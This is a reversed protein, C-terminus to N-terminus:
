YTQKKFDDALERSSTRARQNRIKENLNVIENIIEENIEKLSRGKYNADYFDTVSSLIMLREVSNRAQILLFYQFIYSFDKFHYDKDNIIIPNDFVVHNLIEESYNITKEAIDERMFDRRDGEAWSNFMERRAAGWYKAAEREYYHPSYSFLTEPSLNILDELLTEDKRARTTWDYIYGAEMLGVTSFYGPERASDPFIPFEDYNYKQSWQEKPISIAILLNRIRDVVEGESGYHYAQEQLKKFDEFILNASAKIEEMEEETPKEWDPIEDGNIPDDISGNGGNPFPNCSSLNACGSGALVIGGALLIALLKRRFIKMDKINM